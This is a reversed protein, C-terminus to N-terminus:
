CSGSPTGNVMVTMAQLLSDKVHNTRNEGTRGHLNRTIMDLYDVAVEKFKMDNEMTM